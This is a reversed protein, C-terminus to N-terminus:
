GPIVAWKGRPHPDFNARDNFHHSLQVTTLGHFKPYKTSARTSSTCSFGVTYGVCFGIGATTPISLQLVVLHLTLSISPSLCTLCQQDALTVQPRTSISVLMANPPIKQARARLMIGPRADRSRTIGLHPLFHGSIGVQPSIPGLDGPSPKEIGLHPKESM